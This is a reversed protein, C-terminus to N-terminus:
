LIYYMTMTGLLQESTVLRTTRLRGHTGWKPAMAVHTYTLGRNGLSGRAKGFRPYNQKFEELIGYKEQWGGDALGLLDFAPLRTGTAGWFFLHTLCSLAFFPEMYPPVVGLDDM